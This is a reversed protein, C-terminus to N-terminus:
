NIWGAPNFWACGSAFCPKVQNFRTWKLTNLWPTLIKKKLANIRQYRMQVQVSVHVNPNNVDANFRDSVEKLM